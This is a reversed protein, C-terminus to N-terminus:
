ANAKQRYCIEGKLKDRLVFYTWTYVKDGKHKTQNCRSFPRHVHISTSTFCLTGGGQAVKVARRVFLEKLTRSYPPNIFNRSGWPISFDLGGGNCTEDYTSFVNAGGLPCPDHDFNFERNLEDYLDQPTAWDDNHRLSRNKM